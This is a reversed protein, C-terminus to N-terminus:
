CDLKNQPRPLRIGLISPLVPVGVTSSEAVLLFSGVCTSSATHFRLAVALCFNVAFLGHIGVHFLNPRPNDGREPLIQRTGAYM